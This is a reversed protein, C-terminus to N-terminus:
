KKLTLGTGGQDLDEAGDIIRPKLLIVLERKHKINDAWRFVRGILPLDGLLPIKHDKDDKVEDILGGIILTQGQKLKAYTAMQRLRVVPLGIKAGETTGFDEYLIPEELESTIPVVYLSVNDDDVVNAMVALGVGSLVSATTVTYTLYGYGGSTGENFTTEIKDIYTVNKGVTLTAGHGNLISLKPNSLIKSRGYTDLAHLMINFNQDSLAAKTVFGKKLYKFPYVLGATGFQMVGSLTTNLLDSWDIGLQSSDNLKVEIIKAEIIVQKFAQEKLNDLYMKVRKQTKRPATVTIIGVPRDIVFYGLGTDGKSSAKKKAKKAGKKESEETAIEREQSTRQIIKHLNDEVVEWFDLPKKRKTELTVEASMKGKTEGGGLLDGGVKSSFDENLFPMALHYDRTEKYRVVITQNEVEYFYDLQRLINDIADWFNDEPRINVDVLRELKVDDAWSVSFGKHLALKKIVDQLRVKGDKSLFEAGVPLYPKGAKMEIDLPRIKYGAEDELAPSTKAKINTEHSPRAAIVRPPVAPQIDPRKEALQQHSSCGALMLFVMFFWASSNKSKM